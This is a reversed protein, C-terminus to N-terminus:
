IKEIIPSSSVALDVFSCNLGVIRLRWLFWSPFIGMLWNKGLLWVVSRETPVRAHRRRGTHAHPLSLHDAWARRPPSCGLPLCPDPPSPAGASVSPVPRNLNTQFKSPNRNTFQLNAICNESVFKWKQLKARGSAATMDEDDEKGV